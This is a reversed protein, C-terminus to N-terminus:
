WSIGDWCWCPYGHSPNALYSAIFMWLVFYLHLSANIVNWMSFSIFGYWHAVAALNSMEVASPCMLYWMFCVSEPCDPDICHSWIDMFLVYLHLAGLWWFWKRFRSAHKAASISAFQTKCNSYQFLELMLIIISKQACRESIKFHKLGFFFHSGDRRKQM